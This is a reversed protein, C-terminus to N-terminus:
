PNLVFFQEGDGPGSCAGAIPPYPEYPVVTCEWGGPAPVLEDWSGPHGTAAAAWVARADECSVAALDAYTTGFIETEVTCDSSPPNDAPPPQDPPYMVDCPLVDVVVSPPAGMDLLEDQCTTSGMGMVRVWVGDVRQAIFETDGTGGISTAYAWGAECEFIEVAGGYGLDIGMDYASCPDPAPSPAAETQTPPPTTSEEPDDDTTPEASTTM